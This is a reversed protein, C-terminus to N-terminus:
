QDGASIASSSIPVKPSTMPRSAGLNFDDARRAQLFAARLSPAGTLM